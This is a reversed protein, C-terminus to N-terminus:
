TAGRCNHELIRACWLDAAKQWDPMCDWARKANYAIFVKAENFATDVGKELMYKFVETHTPEQTCASNQQQRQQSFSNKEKSERETKSENVKNKNTDYNESNDTNNKSFGENKASFGLLTCLCDATETESLLWYKAEIVPPTKAARSKVMEQWRKQIGASTLVTDSRLLTGDLLSRESLFTIIQQIKEVSMNLDDAIIFEFDKDLKTYFGSKYIECLLYLYVTLGDAGYRARLIKVKRDSFFDVDFPFYDFGKKQPRPM